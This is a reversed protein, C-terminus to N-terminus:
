AVQEHIIAVVPVKLAAAIALLQAPTGNREGTEIRHLQTRDLGASRALDSKIVGSRERIVKIAAGNAKM